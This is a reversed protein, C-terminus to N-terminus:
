RYIYKYLFFICILYCFLIYRVRVKSRKGRVHLMTCMCYRYISDFYNLLIVQWIIVVSNSNIGDYPQLRPVIENRLFRLFRRANFTKTNLTLAFIGEHAVAAMATVRPAWSSVYHGSATQGRVSYCCNRTIGRHQLIIWVFSCNLKLM